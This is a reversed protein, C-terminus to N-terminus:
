NEAVVETVQTKKTTVITTPISPTNEVLPPPLILQPYNKYIFFQSLLKPTVATLYILLSCTVNNSILSDSVAFFKSAPIKIM